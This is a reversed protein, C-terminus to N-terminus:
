ALFAAAIGVLFVGDFVGAGGISLVGGLRRFSAFNLLDAGILTGMTGSVYAVPPANHPALLLALCVCLLPPIWVPMVIGVGPRPRAILKAAIAVIATAAATQWLPARTLLLYLSFGTPVIAGGLNVALVQDSVRPPVYFLINFPFLLRVPSETVVRRQWIPINILSGVLSVALLVLATRPSLGLRDFSITVIDLLFLFLTLSIAAVVVAAVKGCGMIEDAYM